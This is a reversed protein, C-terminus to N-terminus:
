FDLRFCSDGYTSVTKQDYIYCGFHCTNWVFLSVFFGLKDWYSCVSKRANYLKITRIKRTAYSVFSLSAKFTQLRRM